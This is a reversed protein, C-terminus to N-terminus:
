FPSHFIVRISVCEITHHKALFLYVKTFQYSVMSGMRKFLLEYSQLTKFQKPLFNQSPEETSGNVDYGNSVWISLRVM